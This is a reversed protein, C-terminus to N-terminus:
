GRRSDVLLAGILLALLGLAIGFGPQGGDAPTPTEAPTPEPAPEATATPTAAPTSAGGPTATGGGAGATVVTEDGGVTATEGATVRGTIAHTVGPDDVATVTYELVVTTTGSLGGMAVVIGENSSVNLVTDLANGDGDQVRNISVGAFAPDFTENFTARSSTVTATVTVTTSGGPDIEGREITRTASEVATTRRVVGEGTDTEVAPDVGDVAPGFAVPSADSGVGVVAAAPSAVALTSVGLLVVLAIGYWRDRNMEIM